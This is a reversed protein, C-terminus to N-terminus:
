DVIVSGRCGKMHLGPLLVWHKFVVLVFGNNMRDARRGLQISVCGCQCYVCFLLCIRSWTRDKGMGVWVRTMGWDGDLFRGQYYLFVIAWWHWHWDQWMTLSKLIFASMIGIDEMVSAMTTINGSLDNSPVSDAIMSTDMCLREQKSIPPIHRTKNSIHTICKLALWYKSTNLLCHM